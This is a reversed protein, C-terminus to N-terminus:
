VPGQVGFADGSGDQPTRHHVWTPTFCEVPSHVPIGVETRGVAALDLYHEVVTGCPELGREHATTLVVDYALPLLGVHGVLLVQLQTEVPQISSHVTPEDLHGAVEVPMPGEGVELPFRASFSRCRVGSRRRTERGLQQIAHRITRSLEDPECTTRTVVVDEEPVEVLEPIALEVKSALLADIAALQATHDALLEAIETRRQRLARTAEIDNELADMITALSMGTAKLQEIQVGRLLQAHGYVRYGTRPDVHEPVLLGLDDYHRLTRTSVRLRLALEGITM